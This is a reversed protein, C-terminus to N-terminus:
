NTPSIEPCFDSIGPLPPLSAENGSNDKVAIKEIYADDFLELTGNQRIQVLLDHLIKVESPKFSASQRTIDDLIEESKEWKGLRAQALAAALYDSFAVDTIKSFLDYAMSDLDEALAQFATFRLKSDSWEEDVQLGSLFLSRDAANSYNIMFSIFAPELYSNPPLIDRARIQEFELAASMGTNWCAPSALLTGLVPFNANKSRFLSYRHGVYDLELEGTDRVLPFIRQQNQLIALTIGYTDLETRLLISSKESNMYKYFHDLPYLIGTRGDIYVQSAPSLRYILYGGIGYTNFIRGHIGHDVMYNAVDEPFLTAVRNEKMYSRAIYVSSALSIIFVLAVGAGITRSLSRPMKQLRSRIHIESVVWAFICLIVIGSPTVLRSMNISNVGLFLCIFLLGFLRKRLLLALTVLTVIILSYMAPVNRYLLASQYELILAKWEPAFSFTDIVPHNFGPQFFGVALLALGWMLWKLWTGVPARQQIQHLALDIFFGFFIIYGFISTHYNSWVVMLLLIPLMNAASIKNNTRYYLMIAIVSFSYSILEPRVVSRMQLLIVILPLVLCYIIVPSRLKYLFFVVLSFTLLFGILKYMEFGPDLGFQMVLWGLLAQFMYPPGSIERGNFTFSFHDWWLSLDNQLWDLGMKLHWFSDYSHNNRRVTVILMALCIIIIGTNILKRKQETKEFWNM